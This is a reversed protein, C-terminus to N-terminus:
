DATPHRRLSSWAAATISFLLAAILSHATTVATHLYSVINVAGVVVQAVVLAAIARSWPRLRPDSHAQWALALSAVVLLYGISRHALHWGILGQWTPFWMGGYCTPFETCVLGAINGAVNGGVVFQAGLLITWLWMLGIAAPATATASVMTRQWLRLGAVLAIAAFVNGLILHTAVTWTAPRPDGDGRHVILVTLGGFVIQVALIAAGAWTLRAARARAVANRWVLWAAWVFLASVVLAFVRHGFEYIVGEVKVDPIIVGLCKPWDPCALGAKKARVLAGFTVQIWSVTAVAFWALSAGRLPPAPSLAPHPM